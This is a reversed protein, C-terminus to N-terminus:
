GTPLDVQSNEQNIIPMPSALRNHTNDSRPLHDPIANPLLILLRTLLRGGYERHWNRDRPEQRSKRRSMCGRHTTKLLFLGRKRWTARVIKNIVAITFFVTYATVFALLLWYITLVPPEASIDKSVLFFGSAEQFWMM